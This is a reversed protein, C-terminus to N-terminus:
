RGVIGTGTILRELMEDLTTLLRCAATYSKQYQMMGVTEDNLDVGSVGERSMYLDEASLEYNNLMETTVKTDTGLTDNIKTLIGFYSGEFYAKDADSSTGGMDKPRYAINKEMLSVFHNLNSNATSLDVEEPKKTQVIQVENISWKKSIAINGATIGTPDDGNGDNSFLVGQKATELLKAAEDSVPVVKDMWDPDTQDIVNAGNINNEDGPDADYFTYTKNGDADETVTHFYLEPNTKPCITNAENMWDAFTKAMHDLATRYFPIGRKTTADPDADLELDTAYEGRETLTERFSQLAGYMDNDGLKVIESKPKINGHRDELPALQMRLLPDDNEGEEMVYVPNGDGDVKLTGDDNKDQEYIPIKNGDADLKPTVGDAEMEFLPNGAGDVAQKPVMEKQISFQTCYLGDILTEGGIPSTKDAMTITLKEVMMGAGIDEDSYTVNIRQLQSLEDILNNREDKLELADHGHINAKRIQENLNRISKLITNTRDINQNFSQIQNKELTDLQDSYDNFWRVLAEASGRAINNREDRGANTNLDQLKSFFDNMQLYLVGDEDAGKCVEDFIHTLQELGGLKADAAGVNAMENRYRIDLYPDRLQSVATVLAGGGVRINSVSTYHDAGGVYLAQQELVQRTYGPTNINSINNGVVELAKQAAYIGLRATSFGGFTSINSSM